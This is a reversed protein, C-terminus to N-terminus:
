ALAPANVRLTNYLYECVLLVAGVGTWYLLPQAVTSSSGAANLAASLQFSWVLRLAVSCCTLLTLAM